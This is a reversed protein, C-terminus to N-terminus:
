RGSPRGIPAQHLGLDPAATEVGCAGSTFTSRTTWYLATARALVQFAKQTNWGATTALKWFAKNYVGSSFHVDMSSTFNAANDISSGDQPPNNIYRLAGAGKFIEPGVLFDNSGKWFYETAEGGMDSFAENM